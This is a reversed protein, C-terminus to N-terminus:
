KLGETWNLVVTAPPVAVDDNRAVVLFRQGDSAPRFRGRATVAAFRARFLPKPTGAQLISGSVQVPVTMVNQDPSRFYLERGDGRWFPDTGGDSSVQWKSRATPFEQVYVQNRGSENSFYALFRGDPSLSGGMETFRTRVLPMPEGGGMMSLAYLDWGTDTASSNVILYRGDRSWDTPFKQAPSTILANAEGTGAADKLYLDWGSNAEKSFAIVNGDPSWVPAFERVEDFTFRTTVGRALDRIWLDGNAADDFVV